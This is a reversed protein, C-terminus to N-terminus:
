KNARSLMVGREQDGRAEGGLDVPGWILLVKGCVYTQSPVSVEWVSSQDVCHVKGTYTIASVVIQPHSKKM